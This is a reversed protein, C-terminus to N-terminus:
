LPLLSDYEGQDIAVFDTTSLPAAVRSCTLYPETNYLEQDLEQMTVPSPIHDPDIKVRHRPNMRPASSSNNNQFSADQRPQQLQQNNFQGQQQFQQQQQQVHERQRQQAPEPQGQYQQPQNM